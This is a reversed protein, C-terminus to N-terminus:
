LFHIYQMLFLGSGFMVLGPHLMPELVNSASCPLSGRFNVQGAAVEAQGAVRNFLISNCRSLVNSASRPLNPGQEAQGLQWKGCFESAVPCTTINCAAFM